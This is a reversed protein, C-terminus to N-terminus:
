IRVTSIPFSAHTKQLTLKKIATKVTDAQMNLDYKTFYTNARIQDITLKDLM